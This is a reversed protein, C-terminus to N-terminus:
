ELSAELLDAPRRVEERHSDTQWWAERPVKWVM